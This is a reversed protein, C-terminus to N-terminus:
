RTGQRSSVQPRKIAGMTEMNQNISVAKRPAGHDLREEPERQLLKNQENEIEETRSTTGNNVQLPGNTINAQKAFIVPPNKIASLTELTARCQSQARLALRFKTEYQILVESKLAARTLQNFLADLTHAQATLMTEARKLDGDHTLQVQRELEDHLSSVNTQDGKYIDFITVAAQITPRVLTRGIAAEGDEAPLPRVPVTRPDHLANKSKIPKKVIKRDTMSAAETM